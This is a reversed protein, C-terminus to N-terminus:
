PTEVAALVGWTAQAFARYGPESTLHISDIIRTVGNDTTTTFSTATNIAAAVPLLYINSAQRGDYQEIQAEAWLARVRQYRPLDGGPGYLAQFGNPDPAPPITLIIGVRIGARAARISAVLTDMQTLMGAIVAPAATDSVGVLDNIGLHILVWDGSGLTVTPNATLYAAFDVQGNAWFPSGSAVYQSLKWGNRGESKAAVGGTAAPATRTGQTVIKYTGAASFPGEMLSLWTGTETTSDGIALVNRTITSAPAARLKLTVSKATLVTGGQRVTVGLSKDGVDGAAPTLTWREAQQRGVTGTISPQYTVDSRIMSAPHLNIPTGVVGYLTAPLAVAAAPKVQEAIRSQMQPALAIERASTTLSFWFNYQGSYETYSPLPTTQRTVSFAASRYTPKPFTGADILRQNARQNTQVRALLQAGDANIAAPLTFTVLTSQNYTMSVPVTVDALIAGTGAHEVLLRASTPVYTADYAFLETTVSTINATNGIPGAFGTQNVPNPIFGQKAGTEITATRTQVTGVQALTDSGYGLTSILLWTGAQAIVHRITGNAVFAGETGDAPVGTSPLTDRLVPAANSLGLLGRAFEDSYTLRDYPADFQVWWGYDTSATTWNPASLSRNNATQPAGWTARPYTGAAIQMVTMRGNAIIEVYTIGSVPAPLAGTVNTPTAHTLTVPVTVDALIAGTPGGAGRGVIRISTPIFGSDYANVRVTLRGVNNRPGGVAGGFASFADVGQTAPFLTTQPGDETTTFGTQPQALRTLTANNTAQQTNNAAQQQAIGALNDVVQQHDQTARAHDAQQQEIAAAAARMTLPVEGFNLDEPEFVPENYDFILGTLDSSRLVRSFETVVTRNAYVLTERFAGRVGQPDDPGQVILWLDESPKLSNAWGTKAANLVGTYRSVSARGAADVYRPVEIDLTGSIPTEQWASVGTVKAKM